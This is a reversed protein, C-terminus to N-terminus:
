VLVIRTLASDKHLKCMYSTQVKNGKYCVCYDIVNLQNLEFYTM